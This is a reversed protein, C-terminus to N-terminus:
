KEQTYYHVQIRNFVQQATLFGEVNDGNHTLGMIELLGKEFGYSYQHCIADCVVNECNPYCVQATGFVTDTEFPINASELLKILKEMETM